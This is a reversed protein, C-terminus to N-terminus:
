KDVLAAMMDAECVVNGDVYALYDAERDFPRFPAHAKAARERRFDDFLEKWARAVYANGVEM